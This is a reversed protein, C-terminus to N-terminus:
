EKKKNDNLLYIMTYNQGPPETTTKATTTPVQKVVSIILNAGSQQQGTQSAVPPLRQGSPMVIGKIQQFAPLYLAGQAQLPQGNLYITIEYNSDSRSVTIAAFPHQFIPFLLKYWKGSCENILCLVASLCLIILRQSIKMKSDIKLNYQHSKVTSDTKLKYRQLIM